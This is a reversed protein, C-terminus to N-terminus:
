RKFNELNSSLLAETKLGVLQLHIQLEQDFGGVVEM